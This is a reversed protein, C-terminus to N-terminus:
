VTHRGSTDPKAESHTPPITLDSSSLPPAAQRRPTAPSGQRFAKVWLPHTLARSVRRELLYENTICIAITVAFAIVTRTAWHSETTHRAVAAFVPYHWVYVTLSALGLLALLRFPRARPTGSTGALATAGVFLCLDAELATVGWGVFTADESCAWALPVLATGAVIQTGRLWRPDLDRDRLMVVLVGTLIGAVFADMRATTRVLVNLIPELDTVYVRWWTLVLLLAVVAAMLGVPRRRLSYVVVAMVLFAQMDVSLYWLHGLDWRANAPDTQLQWNWTYTAVRVLSEKNAASSTTDTSDLAGVLLIAALLVWVTPAVRLVRRALAVDIRMTRLDRSELANFVLFGSVLLFITVAFNGSQFVPRLWANSDIRDTPWLIWGHSLVVLLIAVGRLADLVDWRGARRRPARESVVHPIARM